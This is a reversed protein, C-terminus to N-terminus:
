PSLLEARPEGWGPLFRPCAGADHPLRMDSFDLDPARDYRLDGAYWGPPVGDGENRQSVFPLRFFQTGARFVCSSEYWRRLEAVPLSYEHIFRVGLRPARTSAKVGATPVVDLGALCRAPSLPPLTVSSRIVRYVGGQEGAVLAEWCLPNAPLPSTVVDHVALAPFAQLTAERVTAKAYRSATAFGAPVLLCGAVVVSCSLRPSARMALVTSVLALAVLGVRSPTLVFPVFWCAALITSLLLWLLVKLWRRELRTALLPVGLAWWTPEVIFISDGYFWRSSLPWFPHVGYNNGFDLALHLLPGTLALGYVLRREPAGWEPRRRRLVRWATFGLLWAMALGIVLTHTHGRHHLLSGLPKPTTIWTYVIDIDPLNNALASVLYSAARVEVRRERRWVCVAEALLM